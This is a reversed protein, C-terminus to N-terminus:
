HPACAANKMCANGFSVPSLMVALTGIASQLLRMMPRGAHLALLVLVRALGRASARLSILLNLCAHCCWQAANLHTSRSSPHQLTQQIQISMEAGPVLTCTWGQLHPKHIRRNERLMHSPHEDGCAFRFRQRCHLRWGSGRGCWWGDRHQRAMCLEMFVHQMKPWAPFYCCVSRMTCPFCVLWRVRAVIELTAKTLFRNESRDEVLCSSYM